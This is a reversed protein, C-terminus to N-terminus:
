GSGTSCCIFVCRDAHHDVALDCSLWRRGARGSRASFHRWDMRSGVVCCRGTVEARGAIRASSNDSGDGAEAGAGASARLDMYQPLREMFGLSRSAWPRFSFSRIGTGAARDGACRDGGLRDHPQSGAKQVQRVSPDLLYALVMGAIFPLLM